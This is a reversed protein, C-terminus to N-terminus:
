INTRLCSALIFNNINPNPQTSSISIFTVWVAFHMRSQLKAVNNRKAIFNLVFVRSRNEKLNEFELAKEAWIKRYSKCLNILFKILFFFTSCVVLFHIFSIFLKKKQRRCFSFWLITLLAEQSPELSQYNKERLKATQLYAWVWVRRHWISHKWVLPVPNGWWLMQGGLTKQKATFQYAEGLTDMLIVIPYIPNGEIMPAAEPHM